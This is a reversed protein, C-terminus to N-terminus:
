RSLRAFSVARTTTTEVAPRASRGPASPAGTGSTAYRASRGGGGRAVGRDFACTSASARSRSTIADAVARKKEGAELTATSPAASAGSPVSKTSTDLRASPAGRLRPRGRGLDRRDGPSNSTTQLLRIKDCM